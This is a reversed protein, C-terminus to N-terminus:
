DVKLKGSAIASGTERLKLLLPRQRLIECESYAADLGLATLAV